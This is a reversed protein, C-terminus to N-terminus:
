RADDGDALTLALAPDIRVEGWNIRWDVHPGTARGSRGVHGILQGRRVREGEGVVIDKLHFLTSTVGMGHDIVIIRGELLFDDVLRVIGGAPAVVPAGEPAAIDLGYHPTRPRGNLIRQAGYVGSIRGEAPRIFGAFVDALDSRAARAAAIAAMERERRALDEPPLTVMREPLGDVREVPFSRPAVVLPRRVPKGGCEAELVHDPPADRGFGLVFRGDADIAIPRGDLRVATCGPARGIVLGGQALPGALTIEPAPGDARAPMFPALLALLALLTPLQRGAIRM